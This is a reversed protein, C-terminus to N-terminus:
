GSCFLSMRAHSHIGVLMEDVSQAIPRVQATRSRRTAVALSAKSHKIEDELRLRKTAWQNSSFALLCLHLFLRKPSADSDGTLM